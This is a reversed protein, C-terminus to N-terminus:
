ALHKRLHGIRLLLCSIRREEPSPGAQGGFASLSGRSWPDLCWRYMDSDQGGAEQNRGKSLPGVAGLAPEERRGERRWFGRESRAAWWRRFESKRLMRM